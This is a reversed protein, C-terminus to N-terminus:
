IARPWKSPAYRNLPGTRRVERRVSPCERMRKLPWIKNSRPELLMRYSCGAYLGVNLVSRHSSCLALHATLPTPLAPHLTQAPPHRHHRATGVADAPPQASRSAASPAARATISRSSSLSAASFASTSAAPPVMRNRVIADRFGWRTFENEGGAVAIDLALTVEISLQRVDEPSIPEEFWEIDLEELSAARAQDGSAGHPLSQRRGDAQHRLRHSRARAKVREYDRKVSGLGIKM